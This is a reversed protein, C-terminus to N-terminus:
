TSRRQAAAIDRRRDTIKANRRLGDIYDTVRQQRLSNGFSERQVDKQAEFAARSAQTRADVRMVFLAAQTVIPASVSGVPLSFAAGIAENLRGLGPVASGRNFTRSQTAVLGNQAAAQELSTRAAQLAIERAKPLMAEIAKRRAVTRRVDDRVTEFSPTGGPVISDLRALYYGYEDSFLESVDNRSAGDFAWASVSPIYRGGITLPEGDIATGRIPVLGLQRAASDFRTASEAAGTALRMLEDARRDTATASSDSQGIPILIHHASLSDGKRSNLRILHYGFQTLVPESIEGPALAYAANEFPAIMRNRAFMPLEGGRAASGSDVSERRAVDEFSTGSTIEARLAGIRARAAASDAATVVRPVHLVSVTARGPQELEGKHAEYYTRLEEDSVTARAMAASDPAIAVFTVRASDNQDQWVNWLHTDSVYVDSTVQQLFKQKPIESRYYGELQLLVGSQRTAPSGLWRQYKAPDFQGDTQLDPSDRLEPPPAYQAFERIEADTVVIGRRRYEEQLLINGVMEDFVDNRVKAREDESLSRGTRQEQSRIQEEASNMWTTYLIDQGNVTAVATTPTVVAGGGFLGSSEFFVFGGIFAASIFAWIIYRATNSRMAQLM